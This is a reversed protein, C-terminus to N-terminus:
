GDGAGASASPGARVDAVRHIIADSVRRRAEDTRGRVVARGAAGVLPARVRPRRAGSAAFLAEATWAAREHVFPNATLKVVVAGSEGEALWTRLDDRPENSGRGAAAVLRRRRPDAGRGSGSSM